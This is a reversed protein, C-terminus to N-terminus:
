SAGSRALESVRRTAKSRPLAAVSDSTLRGGTAPPGLRRKLRPHDLVLPSARRGSEALRGGVGLHRPRRGLQRGHGRGLTLLTHLSLGTGVGGPLHRQAVVPWTPPIPRTSIANEVCGARGKGLGALPNRREFRTPPLTPIKLSMSHIEASEYTAVSLRDPGPSRRSCNPFGPGDRAHLGRPRGQHRMAVQAPM